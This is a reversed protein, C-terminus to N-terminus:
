HIDTLSKGVAGEGQIVARDVETKDKELNSYANNDSSVNDALSALHDVGVTHSDSLQHCRRALESLM